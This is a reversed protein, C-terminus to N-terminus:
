AARRKSRNVRRALKQAKIAQRRKIGRGHAKNKKSNGKPTHGFSAKMWRDLASLEKKNGALVKGKRGSPGQTDM